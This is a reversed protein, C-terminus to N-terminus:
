IEEHFVVTSSWIGSGTMLKVGRQAADIEIAEFAAELEMRCAHTEAAIADVAALLRM